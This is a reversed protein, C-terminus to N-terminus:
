NKMPIKLLRSSMLFLTLRLTIMLISLYLITEPHMILAPMVLQAFDVTKKASM